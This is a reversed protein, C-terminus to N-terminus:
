QALPSQGAQHIADGDLGGDGFRQAIKSWYPGSGSPARETAGAESNIAAIGSSSGVQRRAEQAADGFLIAGLM